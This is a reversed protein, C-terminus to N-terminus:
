TLSEPDSEPDTIYGQEILARAARGYAGQLRWALGTDVLYQFLEFTSESDLQGSEFEIIRSVYDYPKDSEPLPQTNEDM